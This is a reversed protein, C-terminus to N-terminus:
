PMVAMLALAAQPLVPDDVRGAVGFLEIGVRTIEM